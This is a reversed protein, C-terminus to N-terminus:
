KGPADGVSKIQKEIKDGPKWRHTWTICSCTIGGAASIWAINQGDPIIAGYKEFISVPLTGTALNGYNPFLHFAHNALGSEELKRTWFFKSHSHVFLCSTKEITDKHKKALSKVLLGLRYGMIRMDDFFEWQGMRPDPNLNNNVDKEPLFDMFNPLLTMCRDALETDSRIDFVWSDNDSNELVTLTAHSGFTLSPFYHEADDVTNIKKWCNFTPSNESCPMECSVILIKGKVLGSKYYSYAVQLARSFGHCAETIDFCQPNNLKLDQAVIAAGAPEINGRFINCLLVMEIDNKYKKLPKFARRIYDRALQNPKSFDRHHRQFTPGSREFLDVIYQKVNQDLYHGSRKEVLDILENNNVVKDGHVTSTQVIDM